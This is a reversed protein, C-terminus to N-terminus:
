AFCYQSLLGGSSLLRRDVNSYLQRALQLQFCIRVAPGRNLAAVWYPMWQATISLRQVRLGKFLPAIQDNSYGALGCGVRTLWYNRDPHANAWLVFRGVHEAIVTLPLVRITTEVAQPWTDCGLGDKFIPNGRFRCDSDGLIQAGDNCVVRWAASSCLGEGACDDRRM